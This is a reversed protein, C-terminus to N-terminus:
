SVPAVSSCGWFHEFIYLHVDDCPVGLHLVFTVQLNRVPDVSLATDLQVCHLHNFHGLTHRDGRRQRLHDFRFDIHRNLVHVLYKGDLSGTNTSQQAEAFRKCDSQLCYNGGVVKWNNCPVYSEPLGVM